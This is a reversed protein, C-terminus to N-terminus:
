SGVLITGLYFLEGMRDGYRVLRELKEMEFKRAISNQIIREQLVLANMWLHLFTNGKLKKLSGKPMESIGLASMKASITEELSKIIKTSSEIEVDTTLTKNTTRVRANWGLACKLDHKVKKLVGQQEIIGSIAHNAINKHQGATFTLVYRRLM